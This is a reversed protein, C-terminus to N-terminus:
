QNFYNFYGAKGGYGWTWMQGDTDLAAAHYRGFEVDEIKIGQSHFKDVRRAMNHNINKENGHGLVGWNGNGFTWLQGEKTIVGSARLGMKVKIPNPIHDV